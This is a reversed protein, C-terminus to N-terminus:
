DGNDNIRLEDKDEKEKEPYEVRKHYRNELEKFLVKRVKRVQGVAMDDLQLDDMLRNITDNVVGKKQETTELKGNSYLARATAEVSDCIMLIAAEITSPKKCKYRYMDDVSGGSKQYFFSLVTDGHHQLIMEILERPFKKENILIVATDGMHRTIIQYSIQPELKDHINGGGNQNESFAEPFNMKGIDHYKGIVAMTDTDLGLELGVAECLDSVNDCHAFTGPAVKRFTELLPYSADLFKKLDYDPKPKEEMLKEGKQIKDKLKIMIGWFHLCVKLL